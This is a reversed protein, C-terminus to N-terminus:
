IGALFINPGWFMDEFVKEPPITQVINPHRYPYLVIKSNWLNNMGQLAAGGSFLCGVSFVSYLPVMTTVRSVDKVFGRSNERQLSRDEKQHLSRDWLGLAGQGAACQQEETRSAIKQPAQPRFNILFSHRFLDFCPMSNWLSVAFYEDKWDELGLTQSCFSNVGPFHASAKSRDSTHSYYAPIRILGLVEWNKRWLM